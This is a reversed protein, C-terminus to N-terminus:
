GVRRRWGGRTQWGRCSPPLSGRIPGVCGRRRAREFAPRGRKHSTDGRRLRNVAAAPPRFYSHRPLAAHFERPYSSAAPPAPFFPLSEHSRASWSSGRDTSRTTTDRRRRTFFGEESYENARNKRRPCRVTRRYSTRANEVIHEQKRETHHKALHSNYINPLAPPLYVRLSRAKPTLLRISTISSFYMDQMTDGGYFPFTLFRSNQSSSFALSEERRRTRRKRERKRKRKKKM